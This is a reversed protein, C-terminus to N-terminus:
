KRAKRSKTDDGRSRTPRTIGAPPMVSDKGLRGLRRTVAAQAENWKRPWFEPVRVVLSWYKRRQVEGTLATEESGLMALHLEDARGAQESIRPRDEESLAEWTVSPTESTEEDTVKASESNYLVRRLGSSFAVFANPPHRFCGTRAYSSGQPKGKSRLEVDRPSFVLTPKRLVNNTTGYYHNTSTYTTGEKVKTTLSCTGNTARRRM